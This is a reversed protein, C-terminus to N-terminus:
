REIAIVQVVIAAAPISAPIKDRLQGRLRRGRFADFRYEFRPVTKADIM